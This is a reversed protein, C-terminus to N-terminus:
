GSKKDQEGLCLSTLMAVLFAGALGTADFGAGLDGFGSGASGLRGILGCGLAFSLSAHSFNLFHDATTGLPVM